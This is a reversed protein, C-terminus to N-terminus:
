RPAGRMERKIIEINCEIHECEAQQSTRSKVALEDRLRYLAPLDMTAIAPVAAPAATSAPAPAATVNDSKSGRRTRRRHAAAMRRLSLRLVDAASVGLDAALVDLQRRSNPALLLEFRAHM